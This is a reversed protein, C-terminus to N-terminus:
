LLWVSLLSSSVKTDVTLAGALTEEKSKEAKNPADDDENDEKDHFVTGFVLSLHEPDVRSSLDDDEGEADDRAEGGKDLDLLKRM